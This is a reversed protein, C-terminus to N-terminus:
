LACVAHLKISYWYNYSYVNSFYVKKLDVDEVSEEVEDLDFEMVDDMAFVDSLYIKQPQSHIFDVQDYVKKEFKMGKKFGPPTDLLDLIFLIYSQM